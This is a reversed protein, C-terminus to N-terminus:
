KNMELSKSVGYYIRQFLNMDRTIVLARARLGSKYAIIKNRNTLLGKSLTIQGLFISDVAMNSIYNLTGGVFGVEQYPYADFRLQVKMGTDVKGFNGQALKLEAYYETDDPSVYGILKGQELIQNKQIPLVFTLKGEIPSFIVFRTLWEETSSKLTYLAQEFLNKQQFIDHTLQNIEKQKERVLNEQSIVTSELQPIIALKNMYSSKAIRFEEASIVKEKFLYENMEFTKKALENDSTKLRIQEVTKQTINELSQIDKVLLKKRSNYFGNILYDNFQQWAMFFIQYNAQLEGLHELREPFLNSIQEISDKQLMEAGMDLTKSLKLVEQPNATSELWGIIQNVGVRQNNELFLGTLRGTKMPIIEKPANNGMLIANGEVIDPYKIFSSGVIILVVISLFILLAWKEFFDPNRGLIEQTEESRLTFNRNLSISTMDSKSLINPETAENSMFLDNEM